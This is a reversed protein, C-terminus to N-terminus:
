IGITRERGSGSGCGCGSGSGSRVSEKEAKISDYISVNLLISLQHDDMDDM